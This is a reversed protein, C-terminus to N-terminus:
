IKNAKQLDLYRILDLWDPSYGLETLIMAIESRHQTAHNVQHLMLQWLPYANQQGRTNTYIVEQELLTEDLKDLVTQTEQEVQQWRARIDALTPFAAPDLMARPSIGQWRSLWMWQASMTHVLTAHISDFSARGPAKLQEPTLHAATDLIRRNAWANYAYLTRIWEVNM